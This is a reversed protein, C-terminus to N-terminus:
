GVPLQLQLDSLEILLPINEGFVEGAVKGCDSFKFSLYIM